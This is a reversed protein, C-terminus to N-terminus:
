FRLLLPTFESAGGYIPFALQLIKLVFVVYSLVPNALIAELIFMMSTTLDSGAILPM